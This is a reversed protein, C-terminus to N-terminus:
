SSDVGFVLTVEFECISARMAPIFTYAELNLGPLNGMHKRKFCLRM